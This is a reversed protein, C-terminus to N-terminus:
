ALRVLEIMEHLHKGPLAHVGVCVVADPEAIEAAQTFAPCSKWAMFRSVLKLQAAREQPEGSLTIGIWYDGDPSAIRFQPDIEDGIKAILRQARELDALVVDEPGLRGDGQGTGRAEEIGRRRRGSWM